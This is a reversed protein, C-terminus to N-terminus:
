EIAPTLIRDERLMRGLKRAGARTLHYGDFTVPEGNEDFVRCQLRNEGCLLAGIDIYNKGALNQRMLKQVKVSKPNIEAVFMPRQEVPVNMLERVGIRGFDKSGFVFVPRSFDREINEVSKPLREAVWYDWHSALWVADAQRILSILKENDYWAQAVCRTVRAPKIQSTFDEHLYLNGCEANIQYTTIQLQQSLGGEYVANILDKGFSDGILVIKTKKSGPDFRALKLRDFRAAVYDGANLTEDLIVRDQQSYGALLGNSLVGVFGVIAFLVLGALSYALVTKGPVSSKRWPQEVFKWSFYSLVFTATIMLLIQLDSTDPSYHRAFAFIPQHWLYASYSVLGVSVLGKFGLIKGLVTDRSSYAIILATGLVPALAAYGPFSTTKDYSFISFLILLLGTIEALGSAAPTAKGKGDLLRIAVISGVLLEWFRTPLLFYAAEQQYITLVVCLGLSVVLMVVILRNLTRKKRFFFSMFLPFVLYYQEEIALSWTHILPALDSESGFYGRKSLFFLNSAFASTSVLSKSFDILDQPLLLIVAFPICALMVLFLAPLIRRARREYFRVISFEGRELDRLLISTILYGSIVYFVDVGVFGGSFMGLGAHFLVVSLVAIARLGDIERRYEM